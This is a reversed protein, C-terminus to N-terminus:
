YILLESKELYVTIIADVDTGIDNVSFVYNLKGYEDYDFEHKNEFNESENYIYNINYGAITNNASFIELAGRIYKMVMKYTRNKNPQSKFGDLKSSISYGKYDNVRSEYHVSQMIENIDLEFSKYSEIRPHKILFGKHIFIERGIFYSISHAMCQNLRVKYIGLPFDKSRRQSLKLVKGFRGFSYSFVKNNKGYNYSNFISIFSQNFSLNRVGYRFDRFNENTELFIEKEALNNIVSIYRKYNLDSIQIRNSNSLRRYYKQIEIFSIDFDANNDFYKDLLINSFLIEINSFYLNDKLKNFIYEKQDNLLDDFKKINGDEVLMEEPIKARLGVKYNRGSAENVLYTEGDIERVCVNDLCLEYLNALLNDHVCNVYCKTRNMNMM